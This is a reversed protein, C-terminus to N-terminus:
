KLLEDPVPPAEGVAPWNWGTIARPALIAALGLIAGLHTISDPINGTVLPFYQMNNPKLAYGHHSNRLARMLGGIFEPWSKYEEKDSDHCPMQVGNDNARSPIVLSRCIHQELEDLVEIAMSLIEARLREPATDLAAELSAATVSSDFASEFFQHPPQGSWEHKLGGIIELVEFLALKRDTISNSTICATARQVIRSISANHAWMFAFDVQGSQERVFGDPACREFLQDSYKASIWDLFSKVDDVALPQPNLYRQHLEPSDDRQQGAAQLTAIVSRDQAGIDNNADLLDIWRITRQYPALRYPEDLIFVLTLGFPGASLFHLHPYFLSSALTLVRRFEANPDTSQWDDLGGFGFNQNLEENPYMSAYYGARPLVSLRVVDFDLMFGWIEGGPHRNFFHKAVHYELLNEVEHAPTVTLATLMSKWRNPVDSDDNEIEAVIDVAVEPPAYAQLPNSPSNYESKTWSKIGDFPCRKKLDESRVKFLEHILKPRKHGVVRARARIWSYESTAALDFYNGCILDVADPFNANWGPVGAPFLRVFELDEFGGLIGLM